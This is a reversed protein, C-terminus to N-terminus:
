QDALFCCCFFQAATTACFFVTYPFFQLIDLISSSFTEVGSFDIIEENMFLSLSLFPLLLPSTHIYRPERQQQQKWRACAFMESDRLLFDKFVVWCCCSSFLFFGPPTPPTSSKWISEKTHARSEREYRAEAIFPFIFILSNFIIQLSAGHCMNLKDHM